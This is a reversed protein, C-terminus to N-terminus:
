RSRRRRAVLGVLGTGLLALTAPEPVVPGSVSVDDIGVYDGNASTDTVLYRFAFRGNVPAGANTLTVHHFTWSGTLPISIGAGFDGVSTSTIGVDTSAGATSLRIELGDGFAPDETRTYFDLATLGTGFTLEPTLLWNSIDGGYAANNFNAAIYSDSAGSYAPFIGANGQFWGTTGVPASNNVMVWGSGALTSIDDFGETLIPGAQVTSSLLVACLLVGGTKFANLV